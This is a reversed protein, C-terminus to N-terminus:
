DWDVGPAPEQREWFVKAIRLADEISWTFKEATTFGQDSTWVEVEADGRSPNVAQHWDGDGNSFQLHYVGGGGTIAMCDSETDGGVTIWIIPKEYPDMTRIEHELKEWTPEEIEENSPTGTKRSYYTAQIHLGTTEEALGSAIEDESAVAGRILERSADEDEQAVWFQAHTGLGRGLRTSATGKIIYQISNAALFSAVVDVLAPEATEFVNVLDEKREEEPLRDVLDVDCDSCRTFGERYESKCNPCFM